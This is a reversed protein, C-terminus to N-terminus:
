GGTDNEKGKNITDVTAPSGSGNLYSGPTYLSPLWDSSDGSNDPPAEGNVQSMAAEYVNKPVNFFQMFNDKEIANITKANDTGAKKAQEVKKQLLKGM